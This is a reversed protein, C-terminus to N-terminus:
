NKDFLTLQNNSDNKEEKQIFSIKIGKPGYSLKITQIEQLNVRAILDKQNNKDVDLVYPLIISNDSGFSIKKKRKLRKFSKKGNENILLTNGSPDIIDILSSEETDLLVVGKEFGGKKESKSNAIKVVEDVSTNFITCAARIVEYIDALEEIIKDKNEEYYFEYAEEIAKEKIFQLLDDSPINVTRAKEGKSEINIPIKDRVLKYFDQKKYKPDFPDICKVRVDLKRLIYYTHSLISGELEIPLGKKIAFNGIDEILKKDRSIDPNLKLKLTIKSSNGKEIEKQIKIFDLENEIIFRSQSFIVDTFKESSETIEDTTYFWPLIDPYGTSQDVGVFYMVTVPLDLYDAIKINYTAIDNIQKKTLSEAWDFSTGSKKSFWKGQEDVDIYETKCRIQKKVQPKTNMLNVEFSDHPHFYLGEIIGWTSDIRAKQLHPKSFALACSDSIIFRHILFCFNDNSLGNSNFLKSYKKLFSCADAINFITETRPLLINNYGDANKVDMRITIPYLVLWELDKLLNTPINNKILEQIIQSDELVYVLGHPLDCQIFTKLCDVKRWNVTSSNVNTFCNLKKNEIIKKSRLWTSGPKKGKGIDIELDNQVLRIKRGDWVWELHVRKSQTNAFSKLASIVQRKRSCTFESINIKENTKRSNFKNFGSFESKENIFEIRWENKNRSIRRENSLHGSLKSKFYQQIIVAFDNDSFKKISDLNNKWIQLVSEHLGTSHINGSSSEYYGREDFTEYKASSRVIFNLEEENQLTQVGKQLTKQLIDLADYKNAQWLRFLNSTIVFYPPVLEPNLNALGIAKQGIIECDLDEFLSTFHKSFQIYIEKNLM